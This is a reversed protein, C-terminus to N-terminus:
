KGKLFNILNFFRARYPDNIIQQAMSPIHPCRGQRWECLPTPEKRCIACTQKM